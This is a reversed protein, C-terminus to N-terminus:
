KWVPDSKQCTWCSQKIRTTKCGLL